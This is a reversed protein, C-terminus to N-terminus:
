DLRVNAKKVVDSWFEEDSHWVKRFHEPPGGVVFTGVQELRTKLQPDQL